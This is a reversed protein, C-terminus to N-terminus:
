QKIGYIDLEGAVCPTGCSAATNNGRTGVYVRGNAVTPVMYKVANGAADASSLSSDWLKKTVDTADYAFLTAPGCTGGGRCWASTDLSWVIGNNTASSSVSPTTGPYPYTHASVAGKTLQVTSTNLKYSQLPTNFGSLYFTNNWFAGTGFMGSGFPLNQVAAPDGFGGLLDRNIVYLTGSKGGCILVHTVTNGAPLDALVTAGGSGFDTDNANFAAEDSPTFWQSVSLTPTLQLLSDGYDNNPPTSSNANFPGNGTIVYLKSNSDVAPAGGSMWIGGAQRNPSVNLVATQTLAGGSYRYGMMWGYYPTIDQYSAWAIYVVGNALALGARQREQRANFAVTTGFDGTGPYTGAITVPSGAEENGTALDIAHLRNYVNAQAADTSVTVAFLINRTPDIVPTGTIGIKPIVDPTVGPSAGLMSSPVSTEGSAGGHSTDILSASWLKVCPVADADFAYLSDHQTTVFVVNHKAGGVMLNAVWLPQGYIAGDVSCSTLKGFHATTVTSTTLAYEQTNTGDRFQNNHYTYVGALDTVAAIANASHKNNAVSTAAVTHVGAATGATFLGNESVTGVSPNGGSIGDVTWTAPGTGPVTATFQQTRALTIATTAPTVSMVTSSITVAATVITPTSGTGTCNLTFTSDAALPGTDQTHAGNAVSQSGSWGSWLKRRHHGVPDPSVSFTDAVPVLPFVRM